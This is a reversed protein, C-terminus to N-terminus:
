VAQVGGCEARRWSPGRGRRRIARCVRHGHSPSPSRPRTMRNANEDLPARWDRVKGRAQARAFCVFKFAMCGPGKGEQGFDIVRTPSASARLDEREKTAEYEVITTLLRNAMSSESICAIISGRSETIRRGKSDAKLHM